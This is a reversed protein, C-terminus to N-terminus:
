LEFLFKIEWELKIKRILDEIEFKIKNVFRFLFAIIIRVEKREVCRNFFIDFRCRVGGMIKM